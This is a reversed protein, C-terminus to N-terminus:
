ASDTETTDDDGKRYEAAAAIAKNAETAEDQYHADRFGEVAEALKDAKDLCDLLYQMDDISGIYTEGFRRVKMRKRIEEIRSM